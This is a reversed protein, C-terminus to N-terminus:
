ASKNLEIEIKKVARILTESDFPKQLYDIAGSSISEIIVNDNNLSSMMIMYISMGFDSIQKALELGSVEPMVIDIIYLNAKSSQVIKIAEEASSTQGVVNFGEEELTKVIVRRSYDSDDVVVIKLPEHDDAM